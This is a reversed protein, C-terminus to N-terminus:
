EEDHLDAPEFKPDLTPRGPHISVTNRIAAEASKVRSRTARNRFIRITIHELRALNQFSVEFGMKCETEHARFELHLRRLEPMLDHLFLIELGGGYDDNRFSFEKLCRFQQSSISLREDPAHRTALHSFLLTSISGLVYLDEQNIKDVYMSLYTLNVLYTTQKPIRTVSGCVVLKWLCPVTCCLIDMLEERLSFDTGIELTQLGNEGMVALSSKLAEKCWRKDTDGGHKERYFVFCIGLLKLKVLRRLAEVVKISCVAGFSLEQLAELNGAESSLEVLDDLLLRV